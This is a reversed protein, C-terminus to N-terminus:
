DVRVVDTLDPPMYTQFLNMRFDAHMIHSQAHRHSQHLGAAGMSAAPAGIAGQLDTASLIDTRKTHQEVFTCAPTFIAAHKSSQKTAQCRDAKLCSSHGFQCGQVVVLVQYHNRDICSLSNEPWAWIGISPVASM